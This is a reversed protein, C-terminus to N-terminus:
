KESNDAIVKLYDAIRFLVIFIEFLIRIFVVIVFLVVPALIVAGIGQTVGYNSFVAFIATLMFIAALAVAVVYLIKIVSETVFRSFSVDLLGAISNEYREM